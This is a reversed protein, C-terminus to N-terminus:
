FYGGVLEALLDFILTGLGIGMVRDYVAGITENDGRWNTNGVDIIQQRTENDIEAQAALSINVDVSDLLGTATVWAEDGRNTISKNINLIETRSLVMQWYNLLIDSLIKKRTENASDLYARRDESQNTFNLGMDSSVADIANDIIIQNTLATTMDTEIRGLSDNGGDTLERTGVSWVEDPTMTQNTDTINQQTALSDVIVDFTLTTAGLTGNTNTLEIFISWTGKLPSAPVLYSGRWLGPFNADSIEALASTPSKASTDDPDLIDDDNGTCGVDKSGEDSLCVVTYTVTSGETYTGLTAYAISILLLTVIVYISKKLGM